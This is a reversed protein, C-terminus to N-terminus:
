KEDGKAPKVVKALLGQFGAPPLPDIWTLGKVGDAGIERTETQVPLNKVRGELLRAEEYLLELRKSAPLAGVVADLEEKTAHSWYDARVEFWFLYQSTESLESAPSLEKILDHISLEDTKKGPEPDRYGLKKMRLKIVGTWYGKSDGLMRQATEMLATDLYARFLQDVDSHIQSYSLLDAHTDFM